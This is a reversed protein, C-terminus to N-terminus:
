KILYISYTIFMILMMSGSVRGIRGKIGWILPLVAALIMVSYDVITINTSDLATVQSSLGLILAINFINSGVINGLAMQTNKKCAAVVSAALEPLSTGCAIDTISIVAESMGWRRAIIIANDVFFDCSLILVGLGVAILAAAKWLAMPKEEQAPEAKSPNLKDRRFSYWMFAAFGLLLILGDTWTIQPHHMETFFDFSLLTLLISFAICVPIEFKMNTKQIAIPFFLATLGLIGLVNFINSGVVNGIAVDSNGNLAGTFSVTLEPMSTGIGVIAAGIVFDSVKYKRAIAVSGDVLWDAGLVIGILSAILIVFEM